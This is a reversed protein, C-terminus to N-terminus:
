CFREEWGSFNQSCSASVNYVSTIASRVGQCRAFILSMETVLQCRFLYRWKRIPMQHALGSWFMNINSHHYICYSHFGFFGQWSYTICMPPPTPSEWRGEGMDWIFCVPISTLFKANLGQLLGIQTHSLCIKVGSRKFFFFLFFFSFKVKTERRTIRHKKASGQVLGQRSLINASQRSCGLRSCFGFNVGRLSVVLMRTEKM